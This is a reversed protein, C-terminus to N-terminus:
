RASGRRVIEPLRALNLALWQLSIVAPGNHLSGARLAELAHGIPVRLPRTDEMEHAAGAREPVRSADVVGLYFFMHEDSAGPTPVLDFLPILSAPTVGIEEECERGAAAALNEASEVHGAVVEVLEGKGTAFHAGLRFQRLMVVEQRELDVPLVVVIRGIRMADRRLDAGDLTVRYREYRYYGRGLEQPPSLRVDVARDTLDDASM